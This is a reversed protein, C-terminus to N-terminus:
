AILVAKPILNLIFFLYYRVYADLSSFETREQGQLLEHDRMQISFSMRPHVM